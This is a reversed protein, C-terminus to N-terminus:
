RLLHAGFRGGPTGMSVDLGRVVQAITASVDATGHLVALMGRGEYKGPTGIIVEAKGDGTVDLISVAEGFNDGAFSQEGIPDAAPAPAGPSAIGDQSIIRVGSIVPGTPSGPILAVTGAKDQGSVAAHPNGVAIEAAGDGNVDGVALNRSHETAPHLWSLGTASFNPRASLGSASGYWVQLAGTGPTAMVVDPRGDGNVDGVAVESDLQPCATATLTPPTCTAPSGLETVTLPSRQPDEILWLYGREGTASSFRSGLLATELKGDGDVDGHDQSRFAVTSGPIQNIAYEATRNYWGGIGVSWGSGRVGLLDVGAQDDAQGVILGGSLRTGGIRREITTIGAPTWSRAEVDHSGAFVLDTRGDADVDSAALGLGWGTCPRPAGSITGTACGPKPRFTQHGTFGGPGGYLVGALGTHQTGLYGPFTPVGVALDNYGDGNVDTNKVVPAAQAPGALGLPGAPVTLAAALALVAASRGAGAAARRFSVSDKIM